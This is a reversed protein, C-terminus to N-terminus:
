PFGKYFNSRHGFCVLTIKNNRIVLGIRYNDMVQVRYYADFKNLKKLHPIQAIDEAKMMQVLVKHVEKALKRNSLRSLDRYFSGKAKLEMSQWYAL